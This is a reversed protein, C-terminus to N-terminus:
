KVVRPVFKAKESTSSGRSYATAFLRIHYSSPVLEAVSAMIEAVGRRARVWKEVAWPCTEAFVDITSCVWM